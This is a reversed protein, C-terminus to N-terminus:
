HLHAVAAAAKNNCKTNRVCMIGGFAIGEFESQWDSQLLHLPAQKNDVRM